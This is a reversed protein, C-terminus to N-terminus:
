VRSASAVLDGGERRVARWSSVCCSRVGIVRIETGIRAAEPALNIDSLTAFRVQSPDFRFFGFDHVPDRYIPTCEVEEKNYFTATASVRRV